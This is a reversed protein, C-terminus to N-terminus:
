ASAGNGSGLVMRPGTARLGDEPLRQQGEVNRSAGDVQRITPWVLQDAQGDVLFACGKAEQGVESQEVPPVRVIQQDNAAHVAADDPDAGVGDVRDVLATDVKPAAALRDGRDESAVM